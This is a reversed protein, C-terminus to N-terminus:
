LYLHSPFQSELSLLSSTVTVLLIDGKGGRSISHAPPRTYVPILGASLMHNATEKTQLADIIMSINMLTGGTKRAHVDSASCGMHVSEVVFYYLQQKLFILFHVIFMRTSLKMIKEQHWNCKSNGCKASNLLRGYSSLSIVRNLAM